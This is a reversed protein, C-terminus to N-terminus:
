CYRTEFLDVSVCCSTRVWISNSYACVPARKVRSDVAAADVTTRHPPPGMIHRDNLGVTGLLQPKCGWFSLMLRGGRSFGKTSTASVAETATTMHHPTKPCSPIAEPLHHIEVKTPGVLNTIEDKVWEVGKGGVM